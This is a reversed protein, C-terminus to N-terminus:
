PNIGIMQTVELENTATETEGDEVAAEKICVEYRTEVLHDESLGHSQHIQLRDISIKM